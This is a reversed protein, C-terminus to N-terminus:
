FFDAGLEKASHYDDQTEVGQALVKVDLSRVKDIQTALHDHDGSRIDIKVIDAIEALPRTEDSYVFDKLAISYGANKLHSSAKLLPDDPRTDGGMQLVVSEKPLFWSYDNLIFERTVNVFAPHKGAVGEIGVKICEDLLAEATVTDGNGFAAHKLENNRSFCEYAFVEGGDKYIPQQGVFAEQM